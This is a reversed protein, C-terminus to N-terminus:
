ESRKEERRKEDRRKEERKKERKEERRTGSSQRKGVVAPNIVSVITLNLGLPGV